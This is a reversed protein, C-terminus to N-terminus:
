ELLKPEDKGIDSWRQIVTAAAEPNRECSRCILDCAEAAALTAGSGAFADMIVMGPTAYRKMFTEMVVLPKAFKTTADLSAYGGEHNAETHIVSTLGKCNVKIRKRRKDVNYHAILVHGHMPSNQRVAGQAGDFTHVFFEKFMRAPLGLAQKDGVMMFLHGSIFRLLSAVSFALEYPPDAFAFDYPSDGLAEWSNPDFVDGILLKHPGLQWMQGVETKWRDRYSESKGGSIMGRKLDSKPGPTAGAPPAATMMAELEEQPFGTIEMDFSGTDLDSLVEKLIPLDWEGGHRNAAVMAAQEKEDSWQVERYVFREGEFEVYGEAITGNKTPEEFKTTITVPLDKLIKVRQHGGVQNGSLRNFILGSLDGFERMSDGLAKLQKDSIKRPNRINAKLDTTKM